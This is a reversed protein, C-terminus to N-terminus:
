AKVRPAGADDAIAGITTNGPGTLSPPLPQSTTGAVAALWTMFDSTASVPDTARAVAHTGGNLVIDKEHFRDSDIEVTGDARLRVRAVPTKAGYLRTEGEEVDGPAAGKDLIALVIIEDGVRIYAAETTPTLAPRAIVGLPQVVEAGDFPEATDDDGENGTLRLQATITHGTGGNATLTVKAFEITM